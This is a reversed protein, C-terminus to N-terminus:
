RALTLFAPPSVSSFSIALRSYLVLPVCSSPVLFFSVLSCSQKPALVLPASFAVLVTRTFTRPKFLAGSQGCTSICDARHITSYTTRPTSVTLTYHCLSLSMQHYTSRLDGVLNMVYCGGLLASDLPTTPRPRPRPRPRSLALTPPGPGHPPGPLQPLVPLAPVRWPPAPPPAPLAPARWPPASPLAPPASARWPPALPASARWPLAPPASARWPPAPPLAPPASARWPLAPSAPAWWPPAPVRTLSQSRPLAPISSVFLIPLSASLEYTLAAVMPPEVAPASVEPPLPTADRASSAEPAARVQSPFMATVQSSVPFVVRGSLPLVATPQSSKPFAAAVQSAEPFAAAVQSSEPFAATVQSPEPIAATVHRLETKVATKHLPEATVAMKHARVLAAAMKRVPEATAAMVHVREPAAAMKRAPDATAAMKHVPEATAPMVPIDREEEAVGVTLASGVCLLAFDLFAALSSRPGEHRLRAKLLENLGDSFIEIIICDPLTSYNSIALFERIYQELMGPGQRLRFLIRDSDMGTSHGPTFSSSGTTVSYETIHLPLHSALPDMRLSKNLRHSLSM